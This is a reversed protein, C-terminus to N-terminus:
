PNAWNNLRKYKHLVSKLDTRLTVIVTPADAGSVIRVAGALALCPFSLCERCFLVGHGERLWGLYIDSQLLPCRAQWLPDILVSGRVSRGSLNSSQSVEENPLELLWVAM